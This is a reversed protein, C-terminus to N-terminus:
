STKRTFVWNDNDSLEAKFGYGDINFGKLDESKKINNKIIFRAMAGRAKKAFFGIMKLGGNRDEKFSPTIIRSKMNKGVAKFYENSALNIVIGDSVLDLENGIRDGWYAYLTSGSNTAIKRGMELRYPQIRDLPRLVGYLGSLIRLNDQAYNLEQSTLSGADLGTYTDGSFALAAQKTKYDEPQNSFSQFRKQNLIALDESIKMMKRLDSVSLKRAIEVLYNADNQFKPTSDKVDFVEEFNLKKAPSIVSLM